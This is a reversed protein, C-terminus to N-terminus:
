ADTFFPRFGFKRASQPRQRVAMNARSSPTDVDDPHTTERLPQGRLRWHRLSLANAEM